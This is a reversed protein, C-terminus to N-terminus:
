SNASRIRKSPFPRFIESVKPSIEPHLARLKGIKNKRKTAAILRISIISAPLRDFLIVAQRISNRQLHLRKLRRPLNTLDIPGNLQNGWLNLNVLNVPLAQLDLHGFLENNCLYCVCLARPFSRTHLRYRQLCNQINIRKVSPPLSHIDYNGHDKHEYFVKIVKGGTCILGKWECYARSIDNRSYEELGEATIHSYFINMLASEWEPPFGKQDCPSINSVDAALITLTWLSFM